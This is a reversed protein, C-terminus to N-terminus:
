SYLHGGHRSIFPHFRVYIKTDKDCLSVVQALTAAPDAVHDLVDYLIISQYPVGSKIRNFDTTLPEGDGWNFPGTQQIDYGVANLNLEKMHKVLHGEGCGFDLIKGDVPGNLEETFWAHMSLAREKKDEETNALATPPVAAPWAPSNLLNKLENFDADVVVPGASRPASFTGFTNNSMTALYNQIESLAAIVEDVSQYPM